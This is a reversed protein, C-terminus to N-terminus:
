FDTHKSTVQTTAAYNYSDNRFYGIFEFEGQGEPSYYLKKSVQM